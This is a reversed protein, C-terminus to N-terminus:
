RTESEDVNSVRNQVSFLPDHADELLVLRLLGVLLWLGVVLDLRLRLRSQDVM